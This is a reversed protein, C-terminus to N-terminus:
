LAVIIGSSADAKGGLVAPYAAQLGDLGRREDIRMWARSRMAAEKLFASSAADFADAGMEKMRRAIHGPAFFFESRSVIISPHKFGATWHTMGVNLTKKMAEGLAEHLKGLTPGDGSMDIIVTPALLDVADRVGDYDCVADYAGLARVFDVNRASTVGITKPAQADGDLAYALGISTKASASLILAQAAGYYKAEHLADWLCYSTVHLPWLLAREDEERLDMAGEAGLRRYLNYGAPLSGRHEAADFFRAATAKSPQLSVHTAPPFYGFLREGIEFGEARSSEVTAFGWVPIIGWGKDAGEHPPFFRWYGIQDGAVAYTINNATISFRDVRVVIEGPAATPTAAEIIRSRGLDARLVQFELMNGERDPSTQPSGSFIPSPPLRM